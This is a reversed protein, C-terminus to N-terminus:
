NHQTNKHTKDWLKKKSNHLHVKNLWKIINIYIMLLYHSSTRYFIKLLEKMNLLHHKFLKMVSTRVFIVGLMKLILYLEKM